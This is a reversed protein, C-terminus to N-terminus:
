TTTSVSDEQQVASSVRSLRWVATVAWGLLVFVLLNRLTLLLLMGPQLALLYGYLYPYFSQTLGGIVVAITAPVRFPGGRGALSMSLGLIIPVALWTMFQPSGVKNFGILATVLALSLPALLAASDAGARVAQIAILCIAIVVLAMLPTMLAAVVGVGTGAVQYTMLAHDYYLFTGPTRALAQWLWITSVPTEAQLGRDTQETVFSFVNLGSGLIEAIVIIVLSTVMAAIVVQRRTRIVIVLATLIAAPWVKIWTAVTLIVSALAPRTAVFAVGVVALPVTISDIRGMAIPGLAVLFALWWWGILHARAGVNRGGRGWAGGSRWGIIFAFAVADLAMVMSLWTSSYLAFGFVTAILMPVFAVIPYVWPGDIGVVYHMTTALQAWYKYVSNVDGMPWGYAYLNLIGLWLHTLIFASWLVAPSRGIGGLIRGWRATSHGPTKM